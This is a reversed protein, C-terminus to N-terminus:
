GGGQSRRLQEELERLRQEMARKAERERALDDEAQQRATEAERKETAAQQREAEAQQREAEAQQRADEAQQRRTEAVLRATEAEQRAAEAEQRKAEAERRGAAEHRRLDGEQELLSELEGVRQEFAEIQAFLQPTEELRRSQRDYVWVRNQEIGLSVGLQPLRVRGQENPPVQRYGDGALRLVLLVVADGSEGAQRDVIVYVPVGARQYFGRKIDLDNRRTDPSTVEAVLLPCGQEALYLTGRDGTWEPIDDIVAVDPGLPEVGLLDFDIRHDAFVHVAPREQLFARFAERLYIMDRVHPDAQVVFDEEQPFLLDRETLPVKRSTEQGDPGVERVNRWGLRFPDETATTPNSM